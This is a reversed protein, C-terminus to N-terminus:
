PPRPLVDAFLDGQAALRALVDAPGFRLATADGRAVAGELEDWALPTSALPVAGARLSYPAVTSLGPANQRWDLYVRGTREARRPRDTFLAPHAAALDRALARALAKSAEFTADAGLPAFLHLGYMGSTKPFAALGAGALADRAVLAARAAALLGAPPAPDLDV